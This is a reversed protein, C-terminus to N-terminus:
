ELALKREQIHLEKEKLGSDQQNKVYSESLEVFAEEFQSISAASRRPEIIVSNRPCLFWGASYRDRKKSLISLFADRIDNGQADAKQKASKSVEAAEQGHKSLEMASKVDELLLENKGYEV